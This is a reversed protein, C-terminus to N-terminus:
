TQVHRGTSNKKKLNQNKDKLWDYLWKNTCMSTIANNKLKLASHLEGFCQLVRTLPKKNTHTHRSACQACARLLRTEFFIVENKIKASSDPWLISLIPRNSSLFKEVDSMCLSINLYEPYFQNKLVVSM